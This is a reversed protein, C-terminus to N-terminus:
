KEPILDQFLNVPIQKPSLEELQQRASQLREESEKVRKNWSQVFFVLTEHESNLDTLINSNIEKIEDSSLPDKNFPLSDFYRIRHEISRSKNFKKLELSAIILEHKNIELSSAESKVQEEWYKVPEFKKKYAETGSIFYFGIYIISILMLTILKINNKETMM